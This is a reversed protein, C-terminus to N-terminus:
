AASMNEFSDFTAGPDTIVWDDGSKELEIEIEETTTEANDLTKKFEESLAEIMKPMMAKIMEEESSAETIQGGTLLENFLGEFDFDINDFDIDDFSVADTDM